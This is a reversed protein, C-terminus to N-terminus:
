WTDRYVATQASQRSAFAEAERSERAVVVMLKNEPEAAEVAAGAGGFAAAEATCSGLFNWACREATQESAHFASPRCKALPELSVVSRM